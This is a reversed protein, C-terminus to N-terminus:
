PNEQSCSLPTTSFYLCNNKLACEKCLPNRAKCLIRGHKILLLHAKTWTEPPLLSCVDKEIKDPEKHTSFGLRQALRSVHTDVALAPIGFGISMVVNATKRGVGPLATLEDMTEPLKGKHKETVERALAIINKAKTHYFGTSKIISEVDAASASALSKFNKYKIFLEKTVRNVQKDTTQASLVVAITLQYLNKFELDPETHGYIDELKRIIAAAKAPSLKKTM